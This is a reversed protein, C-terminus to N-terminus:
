WVRTLFWFLSYLSLYLFPFVSCSHKQITVTDNQWSLYEWHYPILRHFVMWSCGAALRIRLSSPNKGRLILLLFLNDARGMEILFQALPHSWPLEDLFHFFLCKSLFSMFSDTNASSKYNSFLKFSSFPQFIWLKQNLFKICILLLWSLTTNAHLYVFIWELTRAQLIGPVPSGPPSGDTPDCLTPCSQLSKAAFLSWHTFISLWFYVKETLILQNELHLSLWETM